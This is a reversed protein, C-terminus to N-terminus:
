TGPPPTAPSYRVPPNATSMSPDGTPNHQSGCGSGFPGVIVSGMILRRVSTSFVGALFEQAVQRKFAVSHSRHRAM